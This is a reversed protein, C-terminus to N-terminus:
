KGIAMMFLYPAHPKDQLWHDTRTGDPNNKSSLLRGNSLTVYQKDVTIFVEQTTKVNPADFTPFWCSNAETEGQTWIQQPKNKEQGLPNIFYLGKDQTIAASGKVELENPKATYVIRLNLKENKTYKKQLAIKLKKSDYQYKLAQSSKGEVSEVKQIDFGKADLEVSDQPYFYPSMTLTATGHLYQKQWDFSVELKTHILRFKRTREPNYEGKQTVWLPIDEVKETTDVAVEDLIRTALPDDSTNQAINRKNSNDITQNETSKCAFVFLAILFSLFLQKQINIM